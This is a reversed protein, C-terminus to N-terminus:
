LWTSFFVESDNLVLNWYKLLKLIWYLAQKLIQWAKQIVGVKWNFNLLDNLSRESHLCILHSWILNRQGSMVDAHSATNDLDVDTVLGQCEEQVRCKWWEPNSLPTTQRMTLSAFSECTSIWNLFILYSRMQNRATCVILFCVPYLRSIGFMQNPLQCDSCLRLTM